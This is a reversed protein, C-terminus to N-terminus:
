NPRQFLRYGGLREFPGSGIPSEWSTAASWIWFCIGLTLALMSAAQNSGFWALLPGLGLILFTKLLLVGARRLGEPWRLTTGDPRAVFIGSARQGWTSRLPGLPLAVHYILMLLYFIASAGVFNRFDTPTYLQMADELPETAPWITWAMRMLFSYVSVMLLADMWFACVRQSVRAFELPM